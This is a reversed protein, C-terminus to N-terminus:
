CVQHSQSTYCKYTSFLFNDIWNITFIPWTRGYTFYVHRPNHIHKVRFVGLQTRMTDGACQKGSNMDDSPPLQGAAVAAAAALGCPWWSPLQWSGPAKVPFDKLCFCWSTLPPTTDFCNSVWIILTLDGDYHPVSNDGSYQHHSPHDAPHTTTATTRLTSVSHWVHWWEGGVDWCVKVLCM